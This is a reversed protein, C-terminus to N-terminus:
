STSVADCEELVENPTAEVNSEDEDVRDDYYKKNKERVDSWYDTTCVKKMISEVTKYEPHNKLLELTALRWRDNTDDGIECRCEDCAYLPKCHGYAYPDRCRDVCWECVIDECVYCVVNGM